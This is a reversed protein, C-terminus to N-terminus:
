IFALLYNLIKSSLGLVLSLDAKQLQINQLPIERFIVLHLTHPNPRPCDCNVKLAKDYLKVMTMLLVARSM